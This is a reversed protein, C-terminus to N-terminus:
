FPQKIRLKSNREESLDEIQKCLDNIRTENKDQIAGKLDDILRIISEEIDVVDERSAVQGGALADYAHMVTKRQPDSYDMNSAASKMKELIFKFNMIQTSRTAQQESVHSGHIMVLLFTALFAGFIILQIFFAVSPFLWLAKSSILGAIIAVVLYCGTVGSIEYVQPYPKNNIYFIEVYSTIVAALMIFVYSIWFAASFTDTFLFLGVNAVIILIAAIMSKMGTRNM